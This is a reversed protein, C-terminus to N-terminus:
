ASRLVKAIQADSRRLSLLALAALGLPALSWLPLGAVAIAVALALLGSIGVEALTAFWSSGRRRKFDARKGPKQLWVNVLGCSWAALGAGLATWLATLPALWALAALPALLLAAVPLLAAALKARRVTRVPAPAVALLDPCDEASLTIWSLSGAVQGALFVVVGAGGALAAGGGGQGATRSLIVATPVLYLVRLFVQSLMGPDRAILRLEKALTVAFAGAAFARDGGPAVPRVASAEAGQAAAAALAFRRGLGLASLVFVACSLGLIALLPLPEGLMARLPWWGIPPLKLRGETVAHVLSEMLSRSAGRGMIARLQTALFFSAGVVAALVQAVVRTRRPGILSFLAMALNLGAASALLALAVLVGFVGIWEPHGLFLAPAGLPVAFILVVGLVGGALGLARVFLVTRPPIPSSFLLDLDGREYFADAAQALTQSLMLTFVTACCALAIAAAVPGVPVDRGRLALGLVTGAALLAVLLVGAGIMAGPGSHKGGLARLNLRIEHVLLWAASGPALLRM